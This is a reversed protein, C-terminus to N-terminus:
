HNRKRWGYTLIKELVLWSGLVADFLCSARCGTKQTPPCNDPRSGPSSKNLDTPNPPKQRLRKFLLGLTGITMCPLWVYIIESRLVQLGRGTIFRDLSLPSVAIPRWPFFFRENSFPASLAVGLGGSTLADLLAHSATTIFVFIFAATRGSRLRRAMFMAILGIALAFVISHSFGRHGMVHGYPIGLRFGIVDADPLISGIIGAVLLRGSVKRGGLLAAALPVAPHSILTPM